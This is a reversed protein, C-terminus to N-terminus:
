AKICNVREVWLLIRDGLFRGVNTIEDGRDGPNRRDNGEERRGQAGEAGEANRRTRQPKIRGKEIKIIEGPVIWM